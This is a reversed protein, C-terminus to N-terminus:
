DNYLARDATNVGKRGQQQGNSRTTMADEIMTRVHITNLQASVRGIATDDM